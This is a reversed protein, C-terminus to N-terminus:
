HMEVPLGLDFRLQRIVAELVEKGDIRALQRAGQLASLVLTARGEPTGDFKFEAQERGVKMVRTLWAHTAEGLRDGAARVNDPLEEYDLALAGMPCLPRGGEFQALTFAFLGEIQPTAKGGYAMFEGTQERLQQHFDEILAVALDAKTPFHYHVAANKVGLPHAIDRYSFGNFGRQLLLRHAHQIIQQRTDPPTM